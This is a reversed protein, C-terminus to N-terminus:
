DPQRSAAARAEDLWAAILADELQRDHAVRPDRCFADYDRQMAETYADCLNVLKAPLEHTIRGALRARVPLSRHMAASSTAWTSAAAVPDLWRDKRLEYILAAPIFPRVTFSYEGAAVWSVPIDAGASLERADEAARQAPPRLDAPVAAALEAASPMQQRLEVIRDQARGDVLVLFRSQGQTVVSDYRVQAIIQRVRPSTSGLSAALAPSRAAASAILSAAQRSSLRAPRLFQQVRGRQLVVSEFEGSIADIYQPTETRDTRDARSQPAADRSDVLLSERFADCLVTAVQIPTAGGPAAFGEGAALRISILGQLLEIELPLRASNDTNLHDADELNPSAQCIVYSDRDSFWEGCNTKCWQYFLPQSGRWFSSLDTEMSSMHWAFGPAPNNSLYPSYLKHLRDYPGMGAARGLYLWTSAGLATTVVATIIWPRSCAVTFLSGLAALPRPRCAKPPKVPKMGIRAALAMRGTAATLSAPAAIASSAKLGMTLVGLAVIAGSRTLAARLRRAGVQLRRMVSGRSIRLEGAIDVDTLGRLYYLIIPVRFKEPLDEIAEDVEPSLEDWPPEAPNVGATAASEDAREVAARQEHKRRRARERLLDISRRTATSHLYASVPVRVMEAQRALELFCGQAVDEADHHNGTVRRATSFVMQRYRRALQDFALADSTRIYRELLKSDTDHMDRGEAGLCYM